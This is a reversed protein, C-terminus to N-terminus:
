YFALEARVWFSDHLYDFVVLLLDPRMGFANGPVVWDLHEGAALHGLCLFDRLGLGRKFLKPVGVEWVRFTTMILTTQIHPLKNLYSHILNTDSNNTHSDSDHAM